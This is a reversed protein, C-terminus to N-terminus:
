VLLLSSAPSWLFRYYCVQFYLDNIQNSFVAPFSSPPNTWMCNAGMNVGDHHSGFVAWHNSAVCCSTFGQTALGSHHIPIGSSGSALSQFELTLCISENLHHMIFCEPFVVLFSYSYIYDTYALHPSQSETRLSCKIHIQRHCPLPILVPEQGFSKSRNKWIHKVEGLWYPDDRGRIVNVSLMRSGERESVM